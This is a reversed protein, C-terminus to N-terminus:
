STRKQYTSFCVGMSSSWSLSFQLSRSRATSQVAFRGRAAGAWSRIQGPTLSGWHLQLRNAGMLTAIM